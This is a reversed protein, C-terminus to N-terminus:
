RWIFVKQKTRLVQGNTRQYASNVAQYLNSSLLSTAKSWNIAMTSFCEMQSTVISAKDSLEAIQFFQSDTTGTPWVAKAVTPIQTALKVFLTSAAKAAEDVGELEPGTILGLGITLALLVDSLAVNTKKEPDVIEVIGSIASLAQSFAFELAWYWTTFFRNM